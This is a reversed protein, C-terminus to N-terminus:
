LNYQPNLKTISKEKRRRVLAHSVAPSLLYAFPVAGILHLFTFPIQGLVAVIFNQHFFLPGIFFGSISDYFLVAIFAFLAYNRANEKFHKFFLNSFFGLSGYLIATILTWIGLGSTISDFLIISFFGFLFALTPGYHKSFPMQVVLLPEVNPPRFPIFRIFLCAVFGLIYKFWDKKYIQM